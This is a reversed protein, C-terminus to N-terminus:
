RRRASEVKKGNEGEREVPSGSPYAAVEKKFNSSGAAEGSERKRCGKSTPVTGEGERSPDNKKGSSFRLGM